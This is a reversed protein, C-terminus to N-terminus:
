NLENQLIFTKALLTTCSQRHLQNHFQIQTKTRAGTQQLSTFKVRFYSKFIVRKLTSVRWEFVM